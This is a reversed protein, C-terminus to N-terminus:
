VQLNFLQLLHDTVSTICADGGRRSKAPEGHGDLSAPLQPMDGKVNGTDKALLIGPVRTSM